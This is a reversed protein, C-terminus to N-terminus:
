HCFTTKATSLPINLVNRCTLATSGRHLLCILMHIPKCSTVLLNKNCQLEPFHWLLYITVPIHCKKPTGWEPLYLIISTFLKVLSPRCVSNLTYIKLCSFNLIMMHIFKLFHSLDLLKTPHVRRMLCLLMTSLTLSKSNHTGNKLYHCPNVARIKTEFHCKGIVKGRFIGGSGQSTCKFLLNVVRSIEGHFSYVFLM